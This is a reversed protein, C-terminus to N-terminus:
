SGRWGDGEEAQGKCDHVCSLSPGGLDPILLPGSTPLTPQRSVNNQLIDNAAGVVACGQLKGIQHLADVREAQLDNITLPGQVRVCGSHFHPWTHRPQRAPRYDPRGAKPSKATSLLKGPPTAGPAPKPEQGSGRCPKGEQESNVGM